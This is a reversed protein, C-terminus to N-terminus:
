RPWVNRLLTATMIRVTEGSDPDKLVINTRVSGQGVGSLTTHSFAGIDSNEDVFANKALLTTSVGSVNRYGGGEAIAGPPYPGCDLKLM